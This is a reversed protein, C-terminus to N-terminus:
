FVVNKAKVKAFNTNFTKGQCDIASLTNKSATQLRLYTM